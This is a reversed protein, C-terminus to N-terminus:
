RLVFRLKETPKGALTVMAVAKTRGEKFNGKAELKDGGAPTLKVEIKDGETHL